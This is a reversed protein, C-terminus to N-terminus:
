FAPPNYHIGFLNLTSIPFLSTYCLNCVNVVAGQKMLTYKFIFYKLLIAYATLTQCHKKKASKRNKKYGVVTALGDIYRYNNTSLLISSPFYLWFQSLIHYHCGWFVLWEICQLAMNIRTLHAFRHLYRWQKCLLNSILMKTWKGHICLAQFFLVGHM